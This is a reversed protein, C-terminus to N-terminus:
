VMEYCLLDYLWVKGGMTRYTEATMFGFRAAERERERESRLAALGVVFLPIHLFLFM